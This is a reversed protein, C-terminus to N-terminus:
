LFSIETNYVCVKTRTGQVWLKVVFLATCKIYKYIHYQVTVTAHMIDHGAPSFSFISSRSFYPLLLSCTTSFPQQGIYIDEIWLIQKTTVAGKWGGLFVRKLNYFTGLVAYMICYEYMYKQLGFFILRLCFLAYKTFSFCMYTYWLPAYRPAYQCITGLRLTGFLYDM